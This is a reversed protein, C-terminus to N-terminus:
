IRRLAQVPKISSARYAPYIGSLAGTVFSLLFSLFIWELSLVVPLSFLYFVALSFISGSIIGGVSGSFAILNAELLFQFLIDSRKAGVARRIGIEEMRENVILIMISLIGIGGIIFSITASVGGLISFIHLAEKEMRLYDDPSLVTFDEKEGPKINHRKRLLQRIKEKVYPIYDRHEVKVYITNIYDVNALRRMATKLPTYILSDQDEGSVDTGKEEMVGIVKCPVRFILLTKGIPEEDGFFDKAIKYGLVIVKEGSKEEKSSYFRGKVVKINRIQPYDKGVGVITSFITTGGRRIPYSIHFSPLVTKIHDIHQKIAVADSIKLTKASTISRSSKRFVLVRGAKIVVLNKGFSEVEKRSKEQLSHSISVMSVLAFSGFGVGLVPFLM